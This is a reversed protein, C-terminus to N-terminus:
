KGEELEYLKRDLSGEAVAKQYEALASALLRMVAAPVEPGNPVIEIAVVGDGDEATLSVDGTRLIEADFHLGSRLLKDAAARLEADEVPYVIQRRRGDPLLYQTFPIGAM